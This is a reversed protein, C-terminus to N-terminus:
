PQRRAFGVENGHFYEGLDKWVGGAFAWEGMDVQHKNQKNEPALMSNHEFSRSDVRSQLELPPSPLFINLVKPPSPKQVHNNLNIHSIPIIEIKPVEM